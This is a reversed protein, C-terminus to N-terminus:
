SKQLIYESGCDRCTYRVDHPHNINLDGLPRNCSRGNRRQGTCVVVVYRSRAADPPVVLRPRRVPAMVM